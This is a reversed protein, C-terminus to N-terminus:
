LLKISFKKEYYKIFREFIISDPKFGYVSYKFVKDMNRNKDNNILWDIFTRCMPKFDGFLKNISYGSVKWSIYKNYYDSLTNLNRSLAILDKENLKIKTKEQFYNTIEPFKNEVQPILPKPDNVCAILFVSQYFSYPNYIANSLSVPFGRDKILYGQQCWESVKKLTIIIEQKSFRHRLINKHINYKKLFDKDFHKKYLKGSKLINLHKIINLWVKSPKKHTTINPLTNWVSIAKTVFPHLELKASIEKQQTEKIGKISTLVKKCPHTEHSVSDEKLQKFSSKSNYTSNYLKSKKTLGAKVKQDVWVKGNLRRQINAKLIRRRGDFYIQKVFGLRKLKRIGVSICHKSVKFFNSFYENSAFCGKLKSLSDIEFLLSKDLWSLDKCLYIEKPIWIGKFDREKKTYIEGSESIIFDEESENNYGM